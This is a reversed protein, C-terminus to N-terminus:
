HKLSRIFDQLAYVDNCDMRVPRSQEMGGGGGSGGGGGGSSSGRSWDAEECELGPVMSSM